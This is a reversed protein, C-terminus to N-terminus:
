LHSITGLIRAGGVMDKSVVIQQMFQLSILFNLGSSEWM